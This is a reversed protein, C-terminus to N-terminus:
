VPLIQKINPHFKRQLALICMTTTYYVKTMPTTYLKEVKNSQNKVPLHATWRLTESGSM